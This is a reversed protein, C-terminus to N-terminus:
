RIEGNAIHGHWHKAASADISPTVTMKSFDRTSVKWCVEAKMPVVGYHPGTPFLGAAAFLEIQEKNGM